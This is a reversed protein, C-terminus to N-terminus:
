REMREELKDSNRFELKLPEVIVGENMKRVICYDVQPFDPPLTVARARGISIIRRVLMDM